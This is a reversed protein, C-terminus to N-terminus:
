FLAIIVVVIITYLIGGGILLATYYENTKLNKRGRLIRCVRIVACIVYAITIFMIFIPIYYMIIAPQNKVGATLSLNGTYLLITVILCLIVILSGAAYKVIKRRIIVGQDETFGGKTM